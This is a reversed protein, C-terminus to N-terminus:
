PRHKRVAVVVVAFVLIGIIALLPSLLRVMNVSEVDGGVVRPLLSFPAIFVDGVSTTSSTTSVSVSVVSATASTTTQSALNTGSATSQQSATTASSFVLSSFITPGTGIAGLRGIKNGGDETFYFLGGSGAIGRPFSAPTPVTWENFVGTAPDLRGIQNAPGENFYALGNDVVISCSEANATPITWETFVGTSPDLRGIQNADFETFFLLGGSAFIGCPGASATPVIWQTFVATSPDLRVIKNATPGSETFYLLGANVAILEPQDSPSPM